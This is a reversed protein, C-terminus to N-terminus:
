NKAQDLAEQNLRIYEEDNSDKALKIGAEAAAIAGAKNGKRLLLRSEWLKFWSSKPEEKEAEAVWGLAKDVDKNNEYYYQIANFYYPKRDGKMLEDINATIKEDDDTEMHIIAATHDWVLYLDTSKTTTNVFQMTFTERKENVRRSKVTFRLLDNAQKYSYAGWQKVTKNLIITWENREPISFLSYTGAPVSHGDIVIKETFTITTAANAGTRWVEGYPIIGGFIKRDKVNPRSYTITVKGLGFDQIITQTSSAEPIRPVQAYSKFSICALLMIALFLYTKRM